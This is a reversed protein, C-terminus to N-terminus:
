ISAEHNKNEEERAQKEKLLDLIIKNRQTVDYHIFAFGFFIINVFVFIIFLIMQDYAIVILRPDWGFVQVTHSSQIFKFNGYVKNHFYYFYTALQITLFFYFSFRFFKLAQNYPKERMVDKLIVKRYFSM